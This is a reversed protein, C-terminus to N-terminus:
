NNISANPLAVCPVTNAKQCSAEISGRMESVNGGALPVRLSCHILLGSKHTTESFTFLFSRICRVGAVTDWSRM